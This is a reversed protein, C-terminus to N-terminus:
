YAFDDLMQIPDVNGNKDTPLPLYKYFNEMDRMYQLYKIVEDLHEGDVYERSWPPAFYWGSKGNKGGKRLFFAWKTWMNMEDIKFYTFLASGVEDFILDDFNDERYDFKKNSNTELWHEYPKIEFTVM